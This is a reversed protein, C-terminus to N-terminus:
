CSTGFPKLLRHINQQLHRMAMGRMTVPDSCTMDLVPVPIDINLM